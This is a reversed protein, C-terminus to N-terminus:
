WSEIESRFCCIWRSSSSSSWFFLGIWSVWRIEGCSLLWNSLGFSFSSMWILLLLASFSSSSCISRSFSKCSSCNWWMLKEGRSCGFFFYLSASSTTLLPSFRISLMMADAWRSVLSSLEDFLLSSSRWSVSNWFIDVLKTCGVIKSRSGCFIWIEVTSWLCAIFFMNYWAVGCCGFLTSIRFATWLLFHNQFKM